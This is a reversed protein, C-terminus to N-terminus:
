IPLDYNEDEEDEEERRSKRRNKRDVDEFDDEEDQDEDQQSQEQSQSNQAQGQVDTQVQVGSNSQAQAQTQAQGQPVDQGQPQSNQAQPVQPAQAQQQGGGQPQQAQTPSAVLINTPLKEVDLGQMIVSKIIQEIANEDSYYQNINTGTLEKVKKVYAKLLTQSVDVITTVKYIDNVLLVSERIIEERKKRITYSEFKRLHKM